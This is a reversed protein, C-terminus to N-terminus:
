NTTYAAGADRARVFNMPGVQKVAGKLELMALAGSVAAIPLGSARQVEDIHIPQNTIVKLLRAETSDAPLVERLEMQHTAMTLNLEELIDEAAAVLKAEGDRILKNAGRYTPSYISGPVAFVERNQELALRATILAGSDVDGEVVLVGLSLASLIRNRRPFYESRPQTGLPYDSVLCGRQMVEQALKLHEPPYVLDLGCALVAITRWGANLAARHAVADIGRALGSVITIRHRALDSSFHEAAQRGYPTARRTGVVAVAWEDEPLLDGRVYLVPPKDDVERLRPPYADDHWCYAKVGAKHLRALEADPDIDRRGNVISNVTGRDLGAAMLEAPSARWAEAMSGFHSDLLAARVSGIRTIRSFAIWYKREEDSVAAM